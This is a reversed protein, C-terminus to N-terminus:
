VYCWNYSRGMLETNPMEFFEALMCFTRVSQEMGLMKMSSTANGSAM